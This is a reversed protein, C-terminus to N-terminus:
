RSWCLKCGHGVHDVDGVHDGRDDGDNGDVKDHGYDVHYKLTVRCWLGVHKVRMLLMIMVPMEMILIVISCCNFLLMMIMSVMM